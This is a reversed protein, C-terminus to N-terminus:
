LQFPPGRITHHSTAPVAAVPSSFESWRIAQDLTEPLLSGGAPMPLMGDLSAILCIACEHSGHQKDHSAPSQSADAEAFLNEIASSLYGEQHSPGDFHGISFALQLCLALLPLLALM